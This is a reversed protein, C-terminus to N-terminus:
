QVPLEDRAAGEMEYSQTMPSPNRFCRRPFCLKILDKLGKRYAPMFIFYVLPNLFANSFITLNCFYFFNDYWCANPPIASIYLPTTAIPGWTLTFLAVVTFTMAIIRRNKALEKAARENTQQGPTTRKRVKFAIIGYLCWQIVFSLIFAGAKVVQYVGGKQNLEAHRVDIRCFVIIDDRDVISVVTAAVIAVSWTLAITIRRSRSSAFRAKFPFVIAYFREFCIIALSVESVFLALVSTFTVARCLASDVLNEHYIMWLPTTLSYFFDSVTMSVLFMNPATRLHPNRYIILLVLSPAVFCLVTVAWVLVELSNFITTFPSICSGNSLM